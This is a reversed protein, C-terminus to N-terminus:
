SIIKKKYIVECYRIWVSWLTDRDCHIQLHIEEVIVKRGRLLEYEANRDPLTKTSNFDCLLYMSNNM